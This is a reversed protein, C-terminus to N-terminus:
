GISVLGALGTDTTLGTQRCLFAVYNRPDNADGAPAWGSYGGPLVKGKEDRQGAILEYLTIKPHRSIVGRLLQEMAHLGEQLTAFKAYVRVKGDSGTVEYPAAGPQGRYVLNGPNNCRAAVSHPIGIGEMRGIAMMIRNLM